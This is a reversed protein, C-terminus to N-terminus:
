IRNYKRDRAEKAGSHSANAINNKKLDIKLFHEFMSNILKSTNEFSAASIMLMERGQVTM